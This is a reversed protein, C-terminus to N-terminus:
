LVELYKSHLYNTVESSRVRVEILHEADSRRPAATTNLCLYCRLVYCQDKSHAHIESGFIHHVPAANTNTHRHLVARYLAPARGFLM